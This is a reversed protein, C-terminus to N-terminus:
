SKEGFQRKIKKFPLCTVVKDLTKSFLKTIRFRKRIKFKWRNHMWMWDGPNREISKELFQMARNMLRPVESKLANRREPFLMPGFRIEYGKKTRIVECPVIPINYRYAFLAPAYSTPAPNGFLPYSYSSNQYSHDLIGYFTGKSAGQRFEKTLQDPTVIRGGQQRRFRQLINEYLWKNQKFPKGVAVGVGGFIRNLVPFGVEWNAQHLALFIVEKKQKIWEFVEIEQSLQVTNVFTRQRKLYWCVEFAVVALNRFSDLAIKRIKQRSYDPFASQLNLWALNRRRLSLFYGLEGFRRGFFRIFNFPLFSFSTLLLQTILKLIVFFAIKEKFALSQVDM